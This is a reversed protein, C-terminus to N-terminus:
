GCTGNNMDCQLDGREVGFQNCNCLECGIIQDFGFTFPECKDCKEGTVRPPCICEGTDKECLATSPCDCPKCDPFGYFGTRCAECQRGIINAKCQCQGGFPDCEFSTSGSYDCNCPLAGNNYDSTLSFVAQKCFESANLQIHFHDQGCQKIFEKTQDFTEENLLSESFESAPVLLVYDFWVGKQLNNTFTITVGEEIEFWMSNDAPRILERCGSNSPCNRLPLKGNYVVKGTDIKYNVAFKQHNPQYYKVLIHYFGEHPVKSRIEM